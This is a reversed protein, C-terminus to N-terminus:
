PFVKGKILDKNERGSAIDNSQRLSARNEIEGKADVRFHAQTALVGDDIILVYRQMGYEFTSVPDADDGAPM